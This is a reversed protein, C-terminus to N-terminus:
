IHYIIYIYMDFSNSISIEESLLNYYKGKLIPKSVVFIPLGQVGDNRVPIYKVELRCNIDSATPQYSRKNTPGEISQYVGSPSVKYWQIISNGEEGGFYQVQLDFRRTYYPGGEIRIRDVRPRGIFLLYLM